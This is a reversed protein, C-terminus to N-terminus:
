KKTRLIFFFLFLAILMVCIVVAIIVKVNITKIGTNQGEQPAVESISEEAQTNKIIEYDTNESEPQQEAEIEAKRENSRQEVLSAYEEGCESLGEAKSNYKDSNIYESGKMMFVDIVVKDQEVKFTKKTWFSYGESSFDSGAVNAYLRYEGSPAMTTAKYNNSKNLELFIDSEEGKYIVSVSSDMDSLNDPLILNAVVEYKESAYVQEDTMVKDTTTEACFAPTIMTTIAMATVFLKLINKKM